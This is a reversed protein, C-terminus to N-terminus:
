EGEEGARDQEIPRIAERRSIALAVGAAFPALLMCAIFHSGNLEKEMDEGLVACAWGGVGLWFMLGILGLFGALETM